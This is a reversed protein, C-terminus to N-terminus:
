GLYNLQFHMRLYDQFKGVEQLALQLRGAEMRNLQDLSIYNSPERGDRLAAVQGRLRLYVLFNYSAELAEFQKPELVGADLLGKMRERTGGQMLGAELALVKIGETIAFIGAKKVDIMGAYDGKSEAKIRGLLSLPPKFRLVNAAAHALFGEGRKLRQAVHVKLAKEFGPDGHLTRLDFFMSGNLINEPTATAMWRDLVERWDSLSRRWVENKAMIGGPCPPVGIAILGDILEHSFDELAKVEAASLGDDYVIANDQDTTLTQERRGESGLVVFAFRKTLDAFREERLLLILRLLIRDNLHAITRVLDRTAVGTGVLHVVLDQVQRHLDKLAEVSHAEEIDRMLKQPSRSQLRLIDSDTIIGALEGGANVVGVRHIGNRTMRYLAEFLYDDENVVILPSNMVSSVLLDRPNEGRAVVKNRLDRDTLIGIPAGGECVIVSSINKERMVGAVEVLPQGPSCTVVNKQCFDKVPLFFVNEAPM